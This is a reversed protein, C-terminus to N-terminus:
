QEPVPVPPKIALVHALAGSVFREQPFSELVKRLQEMAAETCQAVDAARRIQAYATLVEGTTAEYVRGDCIWYLAM